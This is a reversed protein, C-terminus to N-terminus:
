HVSTRKTKSTKLRNAIFLHLWGHPLFSGLWCYTRLKETGNILWRGNSEDSACLPLVLSSHFQGRVFGRSCLSCMGWTIFLHSLCRRLCHICGMNVFSLPSSTFSPLITESSLAPASMQAHEWLEKLQATRVRATGKSSTGMCSRFTPPRTYSHARSNGKKRKIDGSSSWRRSENEIPAHPQHLCTLVCVDRKSSWFSLSVLTASEAPM